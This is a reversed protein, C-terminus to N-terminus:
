FVKLKYYKILMNILFLLFLVKFLYSLYVTMKIYILQFISYKNILDDVNNKTIDNILKENLMDLRISFSVLNEECNNLKKLLEVIVLNSVQISTIKDIPTEYNRNLVLLNSKIKLVNKINDLNSKSLVEHLITNGTKLDTYDYHDELKNNIIFDLIFVSNSMEDEPETVNNLYENIFEEENQKSKEENIDEYCLIYKGNVNQVKISDYSKDLNNLVLMYKAKFGKDALYDKNDFKELLKDYLTYQSYIVNPSAMLILVVKNEIENLTIMKAM